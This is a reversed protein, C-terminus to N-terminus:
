LGVINRVGNSSRISSPGFSYFQTFFQFGIATPDNPIPVTLIVIGSPGAIAALSIQIDTLAVCGPEGGLPTLDFPLPM